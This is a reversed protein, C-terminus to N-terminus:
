GSVRGTLRVYIAGLVINVILVVVSAAAAPAVNQATVTERFIDFSWTTTVGLPGGGTMVIILTVLTLYLIALTLATSGLTPFVQPFTVYRFKAIAGGGDIDVAEYLDAPVSQLAATMMVMVYPFSWWVTALIILYLALRPDGLMLGTPIGVSKMLHAAPGFSPNLMWLWISGVV